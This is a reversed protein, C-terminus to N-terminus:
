CSPAHCAPRRGPRLLAPQRRQGPPAGTRLDQGPGRRRTPLHRVQRDRQRLVDPAQSYGRASARTSSSGTPTEPSSAFSARSRRRRGAWNWAPRFPTPLPTGRRTPITSCRSSRRSMCSRLACRRRDILSCRWRSSAAAARASVATPALGLADLLAAADDAQEEPSTTEWGEPRPSRGNGRRDYTLVTFEEALLDAFRDFVGGDGSAGMILLLPPGAGRIEHHLETGNVHVTPM